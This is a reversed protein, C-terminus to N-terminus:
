SDVKRLMEPTYEAKQMPTLVYGPCVALVRITPALELAMSRTLEIVAAKSANYDAYFPYGVIGSTSGMNIIVGGGSQLMRRAAEQAVYFLGDLNTRLVRQWEEPTIDVFTHRISIGANNIVIAPDGWTEDLKQFGRKVAKFDSVDLALVQSVASLKQHIRQCASEDRDFIAVLSGEELFRRVTAEGIGSAGGTVLVTKGALGKM